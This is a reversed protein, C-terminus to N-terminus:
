DVCVSSRRLSWLCVCLAIATDFCPVIQANQPTNSYVKLLGHHSVLMGIDDPFSAAGTSSLLFVVDPTAPKDGLAFHLPTRGRGDTATKSDPYQEALAKIVAEDSGSACAYHIPLWGFGDPLQATDSAFNLFSDIVDLPPVNRCAFHLATLGNEGRQEVAAQVEEPSHSNLWDRVPNWSEDAEALSDETELPAKAKACYLNLLLADPVSNDEASLYTGDAGTWYSEGGATVDDEGNTEDGDHGSMDGHDPRGYNEM